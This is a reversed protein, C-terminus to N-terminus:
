DLGSPQADRPFPSFPKLQLSMLVPSNVDEMNRYLVPRAMVHITICLFLRAADGGCRVSLSLCGVTRSGRVVDWRFLVELRCGIVEVFDRPELNTFVEAFAEYHEKVGAAASSSPSLSSSSSSSPSTM